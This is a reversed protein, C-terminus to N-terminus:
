ESRTGRRFGLRPTCTVQQVSSRRRGQRAKGQRSSLNSKGCPVNYTIAISREGSAGRGHRSSVLRSAGLFSSLLSFDGGTAGIIIVLFSPINGDVQCAAPNNETQGRMLRGCQRRGRVLPRSSRSFCLSSNPNKRLDTMGLANSRGQGLSLSPRAECLWEFSPIVSLVVWVARSPAWALPGSM